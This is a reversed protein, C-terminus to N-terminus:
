IVYRFVRILDKLFGEEWLRRCLYVHSIFCMYIFVSVSM